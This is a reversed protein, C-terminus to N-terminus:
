KKKVESVEGLSYYVHFLAENCHSIAFSTPAKEQMPLGLPAM